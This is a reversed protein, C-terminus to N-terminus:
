GNITYIAYLRSRDYAKTCIKDGQNGGICYITEGSSAFEALGVHKRSGADMKDGAWLWFLVAYRPIREPIQSREYFTGKGEKAAKKCAEMLYYVNENKGGIADLVGAKHAFYCLSTCCWATKSVYGYYWKQIEGVIGEYEVVGRNADFGKFIREGASEKVPEMEDTLAQQYVTEGDIVLKITHM